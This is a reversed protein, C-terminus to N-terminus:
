RWKQAWEKYIEDYTEQCYTELSLKHTLEFQQSFRDWDGNDRGEHLYYTIANLAIELYKEEFFATDRSGFVKPTSVNEQNKNVDLHIGFCGEKAMFIYGIPHIGKRGKWKDKDPEDGKILTLGSTREIVGYAVNMNEGPLTGYGSPEPRYMTKTIQDVLERELLLFSFQNM